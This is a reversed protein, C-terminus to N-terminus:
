STKETTWEVPIDEANIWEVRGNRWVSIPNGLKKHRTIAERVALRMEQLIRDVDRVREAPSPIPRQKESM